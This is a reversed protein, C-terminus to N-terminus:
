AKNLIDEKRAGDSPLFKYYEIEEGFQDHYLRVIKKAEEERFNSQTWAMVAGGFGGGTLRAGLVSDHQNLHKALFDLERCSNEFNRSSSDHSEALLKGLKEPSVNSSLGTRFAHVRHQELSVHTARKRLNEPLNLSNIEDITFDTLNIKTPYKKQGMILADMCEEHRTSYLSDVLDHKIGTNFIWVESEAPIPINNFIENDCDIHVLHDKKGFASTGQDLIGCPLGVFENEAHRCLNTLEKKSLSKEALQLITLASALELAASSSLGVSTPLNSTFILRFAKQPALNQSHLEKLVGLTYNNWPFKGKQREIKDIEGSWGSDEFSESFFSIQNESQPVGLCYIGADVAMGLVDGGNYDLHNGLFEIRGPAFSFCWDKTNEAFAKKHDKKEMRDLFFGHNGV